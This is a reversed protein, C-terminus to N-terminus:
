KYHMPVYHMNNSAGSQNQEAPLLQCGSSARPYLGSLTRLTQSCWDSTCANLVEFNIKHLIGTLHNQHERDLSHM